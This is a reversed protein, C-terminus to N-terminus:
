HSNNCLRLIIFINKYIGTVQPGMVPWYRGLNFGNMFAVGKTWGDLRLFTDKASTGKTCNIDLQGQWFNAEGNTTILGMNTERAFTPDVLKLKAITNVTKSLINTQNLPMGYITWGSALHGSLTVNGVM